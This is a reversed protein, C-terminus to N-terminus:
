TEYLYNWWWWWWIEILDKIKYKIKNSLSTFDTYACINDHLWRLNDRSMSDFFSLKSTLCVKGPASLSGPVGFLTLLRGAPHCSMLRSPCSAKGCIQMKQLQAQAQLQLALVKFRLNNILSQKSHAVFPKGTLAGVQWDFSRDSATVEHEPTNQCELLGAVLECTRVDTVNWLAEVMAHFLTFLTQVLGHQITESACVLRSRFCLRPKLTTAAPTLEENDKTCFCLDGTYRFLSWELLPVSQIM